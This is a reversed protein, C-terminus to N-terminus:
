SCGTAAHWDFTMERREVRTETSGNAQVSIEQEYTARDPRLTAPDFTAEVTKTVSGATREANGALDAMREQFADGSLTTTARMTVAGNRSTPGVQEIRTTVGDEDIQGGATSGVFAWLGVWSQWSSYAAALLMQETLAENALIQAAGDDTLAGAKVLADILQDVDRVGLYVGREDIEFTPVAGFVGALQDKVVPSPAQGNVHDVAIDTINVLLPAKDDGAAVVVRYRM